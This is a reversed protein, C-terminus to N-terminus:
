AEQNGSLTTRKECHTDEARTRAYQSQRHTSRAPSLTWRVPRHASRAARSTSRSRRSRGDHHSHDIARRRRTHLRIFRQGRANVCRHRAANLASRAVASRDRGGTLRSRAVLLAHTDFITSLTERSMVQTKSHACRAACFADKASSLRLRSQARNEHCLKDLARGAASLFSWM